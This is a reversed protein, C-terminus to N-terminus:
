RKLWLGWLGGAQCLINPVWLLLEPHLEPNARVTKIFSIAGYYLVAVTLSAVLGAANEKRGLRLGFPIGILIFSFPAMAMAARLHLDVHLPQPDQGSLTSLYLLAFLESLTLDSPKNVLTRRGFDEGLEVPYDLSDADTRLIKSADSPHAPDLRVSRVARLRLVLRQTEEDFQLDGSAASLDEVLRSQEDLRYIRVDRLANGDKGGLYILLGPRLEMFSRAELLALPSRVAEERVILKARRVLRPTLDFQLYLCLACAGLSLLLLPTTIQLLSVGSARLVTLENNASMQNFVLITSLLLGLPITYALFKPLRYALYVLVPRLPLGETMMSFVRAFSGLVMMFTGIAIALLLVTLLQRCLYWNLKGM